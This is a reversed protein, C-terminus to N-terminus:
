EAAAQLMHQWQQQVPTLVPAAGRNLLIRNAALSYTSNYLETAIALETARRALWEIFVDAIRMLTENDGISIKGLVLFGVDAGGLTRLLSGALGDAIDGAVGSVYGLVKLKTENMGPSNGAKATEMKGPWTAASGLKEELVVALTPKANDKTVWKRSGDPQVNFVIPYKIDDASLVVVDFVASLVVRFLGTITENTIKMGIEPKGLKAGDRDVFEGKYYAMLYRRILDNMTITPTGSAALATAQSEILLAEDTPAYQFTAMHSSLLSAGLERIEEASMSMGPDIDANRAAALLTKVMKRTASAKVVDPELPARDLFVIPGAAFAAIPGPPQDQVEIEEPMTQKAMRALQGLQNVRVKKVVLANAKQPQAGSIQNLNLWAPEGGFVDKRVNVSKACGGLSMWLAIVVAGWLVGRRGAECTIM